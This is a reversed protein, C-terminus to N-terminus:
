LVAPTRKKSSDFGSSLGASYKLLLHEIAPISKLKTLANLTKESPRYSPRQAVSELIYRVAPVDHSATRRLSALSSKVWASIQEDVLAPTKVKARFMLYHVYYDDGILLDDDGLHYEHRVVQQETLSQFTPTQQYLQWADLPQNPYLSRISRALAWEIRGLLDASFVRQTSQFLPFDRRSFAAWFGDSPPSGSFVSVLCRNLASKERASQLPYKQPDGLVHIGITGWGRNLFGDAGCRQLCSLVLPKPLIFSPNAIMADLVQYDLGHALLRTVESDRVVYRENEFLSQVVEEFDSLDSNFILQRQDDDPLYHTQKILRALCWVGVMPDGHPGSQYEKLYFATLDYLLGSHRQADLCLIWDLRTSYDSHTCSSFLTSDDWSVDPLRSAQQREVWSESLAKQLELQSPPRMFLFFSTERSVILCGM